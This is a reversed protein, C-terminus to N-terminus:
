LDTSRGDMGAEGCHQSLCCAPHALCNKQFLSVAGQQIDPSRWLKVSLWPWNTYVQSCVRLHTFSCVCPHWRIAQGVRSLLREQFGGRRTVRRQCVAELPCALRNQAARGAGAAGEPVGGAARGGRRSAALDDDVDLHRLPYAGLLQVDADLWMVQAHADLLQRRVEVHTPLQPLLPAAGAQTRGAAAGDCCRQTVQSSTM